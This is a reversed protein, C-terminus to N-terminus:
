PEGNGRRSSSAPAPAASVTSRASKM